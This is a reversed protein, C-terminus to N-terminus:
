ARGEACVAPRDGDSCATAGGSPSRAVPASAARADCAAQSPAPGEAGPRSPEDSAGKPKDAVTGDEAVARVVLRVPDGKVFPPVLPAYEVAMVAYPVDDITCIKGILWGGFGKCPHRLKVDFAREGPHMVSEGEVGGRFDYCEAIRESEAHAMMNKYEPSQKLLALCERTAEGADENVAEDLAAITTVVEGFLQFFQKRAESAEEPTEAMGCAKNSMGTVFTLFNRLHHIAQNLVPARVKIKRRPNLPKAHTDEM